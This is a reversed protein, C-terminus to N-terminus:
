KGIKMSDGRYMRLTNSTVGSWRPRMRVVSGTTAANQEGMLPRRASRRSGRSRPPPRTRPRARGANKDIGAQLVVRTRRHHQKRERQHSDSDADGQGGVLSGHERQGGPLVVADRAPHERRAPRPRSCQPDPQGNGEHFARDRRARAREHPRLPGGHQCQQRQREDCQGMM